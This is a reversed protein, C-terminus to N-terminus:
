NNNNIPHGPQSFSFSLQEPFRVRSRECGSRSDHWYVWFGALCQQDHDEQFDLEEALHYLAALM